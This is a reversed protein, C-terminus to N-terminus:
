TEEGIYDTCETNKRMKKYFTRICNITLENFWVRFDSKEPDFSHINKYLKIYIDQMCDQQDELNPILRCVKQGVTKQTSLLIKDFASKDGNHYEVGYYNVSDILKEGCEPCVTKEIPYLEKCNKCIKEM